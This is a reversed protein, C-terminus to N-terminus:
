VELGKDPYSQGHAMAREEAKHLDKRRGEENKREMKVCMHACARARARVCVCVCVCVCVGRQM